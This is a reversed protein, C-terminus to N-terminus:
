ASMRYPRSQSEILMTQTHSNAFYARAQGQELPKSFYYGQGLRPGDSKLLAVQQETEIGEIVLSIDLGEAMEAIHQLLTHNANGQKIDQVFERDIKIEDFKMRLLYALSSYGTGFDDLATRIGAERLRGLVDQVLAWNEIAATETIELTLLHAPLQTEWLIDLVHEYLAENHLSNASLNVSITVDQGSKRILDAAFGSAERLVFMDLDYVVGSNEALTIFEDPSIHESDLCWRALAEFGDLTGDNLLIKPQYAVCIEGNQLADPLKAVIRNQRSVQADLAKDFRQYTNKGNEKAVYLAADAAKVLTNPMNTPTELCTALGISCKPVIQWQEFLMPESIANVLTQAFQDISELDGDLEWVAAFEDGGLRAAFGNVEAVCNSLREAVEILLADGAPHGMTDNVLKFDDLDILAICLSRKSDGQFSQEMHDNFLKRNPLQTLPDHSLLFIEQQEVENKMEEFQIRSELRMANINHSMERSIILWFVILSTAFLIGAYKMDEEFYATLDREVIYAGMVDGIKFVDRGLAENHCNVCSERSAISPIVTRGIFRGNEIRNEHFEAGAGQKTFSKILEKLRPDETKAGLEFGPLGPLKMTTQDFGIESKGADNFHDIGLRRFEAPVPSDEGRVESFVTTFVNSLKILQLREHQSTEKDANWAIFFYGLATALAALVILVCTQRTNMMM